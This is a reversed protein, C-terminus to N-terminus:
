SQNKSPPPSAQPSSPAPGSSNQGFEDKSMSIFILAPIGLVMAPHPVLSCIAGALAMGWVKRRIAFVGGVIAIIALILLIIGLALGLRDFGMYDRFRRPYDWMERSTVTILIIGLCVNIAGVIISLIGGTIPKWTHLLKASSNTQM